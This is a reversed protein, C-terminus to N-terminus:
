LEAKTLKGKTNLINVKISLETVLNLLIEFSIM